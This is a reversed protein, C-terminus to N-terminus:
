PWNIDTQAQALVTSQKFLEGGEEARLGHAKGHPRLSEPGKWPAPQCRQAPAPGAWVELGAGWEGTGGVAEGMGTPASCREVVLVWPLTERETGAGGRSQQSCGFLEMQPCRIGQAPATGQLVGVVM